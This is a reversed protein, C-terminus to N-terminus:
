GAADATVVLLFFFGVMHTHLLELVVPVLITAAEQHGLAESLEPFALLLAAAVNCDGNVAAV